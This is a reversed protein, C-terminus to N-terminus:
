GSRTKENLEPSVGPDHRGLQYTVLLRSIKMKQGETTMTTLGIQGVRNGTVKELANQFLGAPTISKMDKAIDDHRLVNMKQNGFRLSSRKLAGYLCQLGGDGAIWGVGM